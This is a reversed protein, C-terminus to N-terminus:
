NGRFATSASIKPDADDENENGRTTEDEKNSLIFYKKRKGKEKQGIKVRHRYDLYVIQGFGKAGVFLL